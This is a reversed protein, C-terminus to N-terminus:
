RTTIPRSRSAPYAASDVRIGLGAPETASSRAPRPRFGQAPDEANVRVEIAHGRFGADVADQGFALPSGAAVLFQERVLDIGSIVETVTHEVQIRTNMELFYFADGSVLCEITGVSDYGIAQAARVGAERM